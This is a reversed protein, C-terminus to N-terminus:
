RTEQTPPRDPFGVIPFDEGQALRIALDLGNLEAAQREFALRDRSQHPEARHARFSQLRAVIAAREEAATARLEYHTM